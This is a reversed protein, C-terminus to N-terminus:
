SLEVLEPHRAAEEYIPGRAVFGLALQSGRVALLRDGPKAEIGSPLTVSGDRNLRAQGFVRTGMELQGFVDAIREPTSIGFGGSRRSGRLFLVQDGAQFGYEQWAEPPIPM